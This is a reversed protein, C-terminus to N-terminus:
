AAEAQNLPTVARQRGAYEALAVNLLQNLSCDELVALEALHQHLSRPIRLAIKGSHESHPLPEAIREGLSLSVALWSAAAADLNRLAEDASEGEAICGPFELISATYGGAEDPLLRRVYPRALIREIHERETTM